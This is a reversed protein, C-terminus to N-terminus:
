AELASMPMAGAIGGFASLGQTAANPFAAAGCLCSCACAGNQMAGTGGVMSGAGGAPPPPAAAAPPPPPPPAAASGAPPPPAAGTAAPTGGVIVATAGAGKQAVALQQFMAQTKNASPNISFTMGKGCHNAQRCYFWLPTAVTVQMAMQPPPVVTNNPNAMFGTDMGSALKDCPTDFASQTATHNMSHFEFIVMDGVNAKVQDPTYVLGAAGGVVVTHTAVAAVGGAVQTTTGVTQTQAGGGNNVWIIIVTTSTVTVTHGQPVGQMVEHQQQAPVHQVPMSRGHIKGAVLLPAAVLASVTSFRM